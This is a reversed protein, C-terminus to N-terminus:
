GIKDLVKQEEELSEKEAKTLSVHEFHALILGTPIVSMFTVLWLMIGCSIALEKPYGFVGVLTGITALQSGGGVAPLQLTGGAVSAGTLLFCSALTMDPGIDAYAHTVCYYAAGITLWLSLSLAVIQIFSKADHITNLGEGFAQVRRAAAKGFRPSIRGVLKEAVRAARVPNRRMRLALAAAVIVAVLLALASIKFLNFASPHQQFGDLEKLQDAFVIINVAMILAVAGVDFLREVVWVALQSSMTLGEKRAILFSRVFEGPRGLLALATFGIMTPAVLRSAKTQHVPRLLIRWRLARLYYDFYIIGTGLLLLRINVGETQEKFSHWDFKKWTRIQFYVLTALVLLLLAILIKKKM